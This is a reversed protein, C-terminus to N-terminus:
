GSTMRRPSRPSWASRSARASSCSGRSSTCSSWRTSARPTSHPTRWGTPTSAPTACRRPWASGTATSAPADLDARDLAGAAARSGVCGTGFRPEEGAWAVVEIARRPVFGDARLAHIADIAGLVGLVGDFRGANLTTDVHSGTLM